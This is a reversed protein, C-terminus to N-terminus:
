KICGIDLPTWHNYYCARCTVNNTTDDKYCEKCSESCCISGKDKTKTCM